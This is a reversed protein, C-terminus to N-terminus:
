LKAASCNVSIFTNMRMLFNVSLSRFCGLVLLQSPFICCNRRYCFHGVRRKTMFGVRITFISWFRRCDAGLLVGLYSIVQM